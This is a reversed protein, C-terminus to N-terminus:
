PTLPQLMRNVAGFDSIVEFQAKVEATPRSTLGDLQFTTSGGPAVMGGKAAREDQIVSRQGIKLGVQAFNVYYPTPNTVQLAVGKGGEGNVLKWVLKDPAGNVTGALGSPRFFLKIRTRFAFELLNKGGEASKPPVELVNIWFLTERDAALPEKTYIVRVAQGRGQDLRFFPPLVEFPVKATTPTSKADGDDLWVQVLAPQAGQNTLKVTVEKEKAPYVVRTGGIVVTAESRSAFFGACFFLGAMAYRMVNTM